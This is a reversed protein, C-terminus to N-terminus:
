ERRDADLRRQREAEMCRSLQQYYRQDEKHQDRGGKEMAAFLLVVMSFGAVIMQLTEVTM